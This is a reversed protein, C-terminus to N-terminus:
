QLFLIDRVLLLHYSTSREMAGVALVVSELAYRMHMFEVVRMRKWAALNSAVPQMSILEVADQFKNGLFEDFLVRLSTQISFRELVFNEVFPTLSTTKELQWLKEKLCCCHPNQIGYILLISM